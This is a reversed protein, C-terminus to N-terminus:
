RYRRHSADFDTKATLSMDVSRQDNVNAALSMDASPRCQELCSDGDYAWWVTMSFAALFLWSLLNGTEVKSSENM